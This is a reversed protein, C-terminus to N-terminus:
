FRHRLSCKVAIQNPTSSAPLSSIAAVAKGGTSDIGSAHQWVAVLNLDTRRSLVYDGGIDVQQYHATEAATYDYSAGVMLSPTVNYRVNGEYSNFRATGGLFPTTATPLVDVFHTNTYVLGFNAAGITYTAGSALIHVASASAYGRYVPNAVPSVYGAAGPMIAGDYASMSPNNMNLYAVAVALPGNTYNAGLSYVRNTGFNGAVGGPAFLAEFSLGGFTPSAYKIANNIWSNSFMNDFDGPHSGLWGWQSTASKTGVFEYVPEYQRGITVAGAPGSIGVFASRGFMRGGQLLKGTSTDFGNELTFIAKLGGGLDEAGRLGFRSSNTPGTVAQLNSAGKQNSTYILGDDVLGYLTVTSQARATLCFIACVVPIGLNKKM